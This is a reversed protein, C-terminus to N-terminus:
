KIVYHFFRLINKENTVLLGNVYGHDQSLHHRPVAVPSLKNGVNLNPMKGINDM